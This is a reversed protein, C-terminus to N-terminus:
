SSRLGDISSKAAKEEAAIQIQIGHIREKILAISEPWSKFIETTYGSDFNRPHPERDLSRRKAESLRAEFYELREKLNTKTM